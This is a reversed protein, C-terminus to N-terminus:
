GVRARVLLLFGFIVCFGNVGHRVVCVSLGCNHHPSTRPLISHPLIVELLVQLRLPSSM